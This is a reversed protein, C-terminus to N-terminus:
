TLAWTVLVAYGYGTGAIAAIAAWSGWGPTEVSEVQEVVEFEFDTMTNEGKMITYICM